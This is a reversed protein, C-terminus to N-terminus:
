EKYEPPPLEDIDHVLFNEMEATSRSGSGSVADTSSMERGLSHYHDQLAKQHVVMDGHLSSNTEPTRVRSPSAVSPELSSGLSSEPVEPSYNLRQAHLSSYTLTAYQFESMESSPAIM